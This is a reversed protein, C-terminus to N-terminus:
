PTSLRWTVMYLDIGTLIAPSASASESQPSGDGSQRALLPKVNPDIKGPMDPNRSKMPQTPWKRSGIHKGLASFRSRKEATWLKSNRCM